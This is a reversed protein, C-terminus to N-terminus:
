KKGSLVNPAAKEVASVADKVSRQGLWMLDFETQMLRFFDSCYMPASFPVSIALSDVLYKNDPHKQLFASLDVGKSAPLGMNTDLVIKQGDNGSFFEVVRWSLDPNKAGKPITWTNIFAVSLPKKGTPVPLPRILYEIKANILDLSKSLGGAQMACKGALMSSVDSTGFQKAQSETPISKDKVIMDQFFQLAEISEPMALLSKGDRTVMGGGNLRLWHDFGDAYKPFYFGWQSDGKTLQKSIKRFDDWSWNESPYPVKAEDFLKKNLYMVKSTVDRAAAYYNGNFKVADLVVPYLSNKYSETMYKDLAIIAGKSAYVPVQDMALMMVDPVEGGGAIITLMKDAYESGGIRGWEIELDPNKQEFAAKLGILSEHKTFDWWSMVKVKTKAEVAVAFSGLIVLILIITLISLTVKKFSM